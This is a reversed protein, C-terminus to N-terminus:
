SLLFRYLQSIEHAKARWSFHKKVFLRGKVGMGQRLRDDSILQLIKDALAKPNGPEVLLGNLGDTIVDPVGGVNSAVCPTECALAELLVVGLGETDDREDVISPLVFVDAAAYYAPICDDPIYDLFRVRDAIGREQVQRKLQEKLPGRGGIMLFPAPDQTLLAMADILYPFGKREIFKGLAFVLPRDTPIDPERQHFVSLAVGPSFRETDVGPAIVAYAKPRSIELIKALTFGSNCLVYDAQELVFKILPNGKLV